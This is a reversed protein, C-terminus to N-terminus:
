LIVELDFKDINVTPKLWNVKAKKGVEFSGYKNDIGLFKAGNITAWQILADLEITPFHTQITKIEEWISLTNNSALSDTGITCLANAAIFMPIDPLRGEIYLNAKPCFCWFLQKNKEEAEQIDQASTYTNHVLLLPTDKPLFNLYSPLSNQGSCKFLNLDNGFVELMEALKGSGKQYLENESETEQNHISLPTNNKDSSIFSFLKQSVSYPSHPSISSSLGLGQATKKLELGKKFVLKAKLPDFGFLELFTHYYISSEKKVKFSSPGNSIDGVAVIGARKMLSDASQIARQVEAETSTRVLQLEKIFGDLGTKEQVKGKLHSLELHCHTNIFAPCLAGEFHEVEVGKVNIDTGVAVINQKDDIALMGGPIPSGISTYLLDTKFIHRIL